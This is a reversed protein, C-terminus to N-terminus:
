LIRETENRMRSLCTHNRSGIKVDHCGQSKIRVVNLVISSSTRWHRTSAQLRSGAFVINCGEGNRQTCYMSNSTDTMEELLRVSSGEDDNIVCAALLHSTLQGTTM